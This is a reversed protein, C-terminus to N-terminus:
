QVLARSGQVCPVPCSGGPGAGVAKNLFQVTLQWSSGSGQWATIKVAIFGIINVDTSGAKPPTDVVPITVETKLGLNEVATAVGSFGTMDAYPGVSVECSCGNATMDNAWDQKNKYSHIDIKGWQGGFDDAHLTLLENFGMNALQGTVVWLPIPNYVQGAPGGAAVSHTAPNMAGTGVVGGFYLPVNRRAPVRVANLPTANATFTSNSWNGVEVTGANQIETATVGNAGALDIAEQRAAGTDPLKAVGAIAASDTAAQENRQQHFVNAVDVSLAAFGFIAVMFVTVTVLTSGSDRRSKCTRRFSQNSCTGRNANKM